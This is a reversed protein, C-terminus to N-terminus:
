EVFVFIVNKSKEDNIQDKNINLDDVADHFTDEIPPTFYKEDSKQYTLNHRHTTPAHSTRAYFQTERLSTGSPQERQM